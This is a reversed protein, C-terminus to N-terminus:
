DNGPGHDGHLFSVFKQGRRIEAALIGAVLYGVEGGGVELLTKAVKVAESFGRAEFEELRYERSGRPRWFFAYRMAEGM